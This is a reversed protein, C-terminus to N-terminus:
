PRAIASARDPYVRIEIVQADDVTFVQYLHQPPVPRAGEAQGGVDLGLVVADRDVEVTHVTPMVGGARLRRYWEMVEASNQCLGTWKVQPHLLSGLLDLDRDEYASELHRAVEAIVGIGISGVVAPEDDPQPDDAWGPSIDYSRLVEMVEESPPKKAVWVDTRSAGARLLLEVTEIWNGPKKVEGSGVTAFALPTGDFRSDRADVEAGAELLVRVVDANGLYAAIHLPQGGFENRGDVSFGSDLMLRAAAPSAAGMINVMAARDAATLRDLLGEDDALLRRVYDGNARRCAGIFRDVETSNASAGNRLLLAAVEDDGARVAGRLAPLGTDSDHVDPDAGAALLASVVERTANAAAADALARTAHAATDGSGARVAELLISVAEADDAYVAAGLAWTGAVRAGHRLLLRLCRHDRRDAAQEVCRNDDASAGAELLVQTIDANNVTVAGTLASRYGNRFAGNNTNPSAGAELLLHVVDALRPERSPDVQHWRSYCAFLLPPWGRQDDVALAVESDAAVRARVADSDGLVVAALLSRGAISPDSQLLAAAEKLRGEISAAVFTDVRADLETRGAQVAVKLKPWSSFGLERAIVLQAGALSDTSPASSPHHRVFRRLAGEDGRRAADRLDKAQRRLQDFNLRDPLSTSM